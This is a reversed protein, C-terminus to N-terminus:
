SCILLMFKLVSHAHSGSISNIHLTSFVSWLDIYFCYMKAQLGWDQPGWTAELYRCFMKILFVAFIWNVLPEIDVLFGKPSQLVFFSLWYCGIILVYQIRATIPLPSVTITCMSPFHYSPIKVCSLSVQRKDHSLFLSATSSVSLFYIWISLLCYRKICHM